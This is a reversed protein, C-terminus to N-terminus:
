FFATIAYPLNYIKHSFLYFIAYRTILNDCAVILYSASLFLALDMSSFTNIMVSGGERLISKWTILPHMKTM